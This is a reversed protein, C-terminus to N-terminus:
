QAEIHMLIIADVILAALHDEDKHGRMAQRLHRHISAYYSRRDTRKAKMWDDIAYKTAGFQFRDIIRDEYDLPMLTYDRKAQKDERQVAM